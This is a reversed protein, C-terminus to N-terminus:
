GHLSGSQETRVFIMARTMTGVNLDSFYRALEQRVAAGAGASAHWGDDPFGAIVVLLGGPRVRRALAEVAPVPDQLHDLVNIALAVDYTRIPSGLRLRGLDRGLKRRHRLFLRKVMNREACAVMVGRRVLAVAYRGAGSGFDYASHVRLSLLLDLVQGATGGDGLVAYEWVDQLLSAFCWFRGSCPEEWARVPEPPFAAESRFAENGQSWLMPLFDFFDLVLDRLEEEEGPKSAATVARALDIAAEFLAAPSSPYRGASAQLPRGDVAVTALQDLKELLRAGIHTM